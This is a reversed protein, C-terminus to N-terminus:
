RQKELPRRCFCDIAVVEVQVVVTFIYFPLPIFPTLLCRFSTDFHRLVSNALCESLSPWGLLNNTGRWVLLLYLPFFLLCHTLYFTQSQDQFPRNVNRLIEPGRATLQIQRKLSREQTLAAMKYFDQCHRGWFVACTLTLLDTRWVSGCACVDMRTVM